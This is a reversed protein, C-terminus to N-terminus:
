FESDKDWVLFHKPKWTDEINQYWVTINTEEDKEWTVEELTISESMYEEETYINYLEIRFESLAGDLVFHERQLPSGYKSLAQELTLELVDEFKETSKVDINNKTQVPNSNSAENDIARKCGILCLVVILIKLRNSVTYM